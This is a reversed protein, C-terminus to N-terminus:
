FRCHRHVAVAPLRGVQLLSLMYDIIFALRPVFCGCYKNDSKKKLAPNEDCMCRPMPLWIPTGSDGGGRVAKAAAKSAESPSQNEAALKKKAAHFKQQASQSLSYYEKMLVQVPKQSRMVQSFFTVQVLPVISVPPNM